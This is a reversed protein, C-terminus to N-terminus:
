RARGPGHLAKGYRGVLVACMGGRQAVNVVQKQSARGLVAVGYKTPAFGMVTYFPEVHVSSDAAVVPFENVSIRALRQAVWDEDSHLASQIAAEWDSEEMLPGLLIRDGGYSRNPKMVLIDQNKRMFELLDIPDGDPDTTRRDKVVRTWMVHRKFYRRDDATFYKETFRPDTLIEWTSKHDFDGALSSVIRNERFLIKMPRIDLGEEKEMYLLDRMEYDRYGVDVKTDEHWVEGGRVYLESPDAHVVNLGRTERYYEMLPELEIPGDGSYKPDIFCIAGEPRGIYELHDLMEQIFMERLDLGPELHLDPALEQLTPLVTDALVQECNPVLHIGGVGSLNPEVFNLSDKWMPSTFDVMADLRGFVPNNERHSQHWCDWLFKEEDPQLPVVERIAFDQIYLDPLRKLANVIALSVVHFYAVQDPMVALPRLLINIVDEKGDRVYILQHNRAEQPVRQALDKLKEPPLSYFLQRVRSDLSLGKLGREDALTLPATM